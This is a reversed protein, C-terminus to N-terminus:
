YWIYRIKEEKITKIHNQSPDKKDNVKEGQNDTREVQNIADLLNRLIHKQLRRHQLFAIYINQSISFNENLKNEWNNSFDICEQLRKAIFPHFPALVKATVFCLKGSFKDYLKKEEYSSRPGEHNKLRLAKICLTADQPSLIRCLNWQEQAIKHSKEYYSKRKNIDEKSEYYCNKLARLENQVEEKLLNRLRKIKENKENINQLPCDSSHSYALVPQLLALSTIFLFKKILSTM